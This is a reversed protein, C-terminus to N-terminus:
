NEKDEVIECMGIELSEDYIVKYGRFRTIDYITRNNIKENKCLIDFSLRNCKICPTKGTVHMFLECHRIIWDPDIYLFNIM